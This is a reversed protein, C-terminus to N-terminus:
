HRWVPFAMAFGLEQLMDMMTNVAHRDVAAPVDIAHHKFEPFVEITLGLRILEDKYPKLDLGDQELIWVLSHGSTEVITYEFISGNVADPVASFKDDLALGKIFFPANRLQYIGDTRDCWVHEVGVPPWGDNVNLAFAVEEM